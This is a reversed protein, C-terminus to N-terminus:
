TEELTLSGKRGFPVRDRLKRHLACIKLSIECKLVNTGGDHLLVLAMAFRGITRIHVFERCYLALPWVGRITRLLLLLLLLWSSGPLVLLLLLLWSSGPLVLLLLLLRVQLLATASAEFFLLLLLLSLLLLALM